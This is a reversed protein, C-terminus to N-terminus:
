KNRFAVEEEEFSKIMKFFGNALGLSPYLEIDSALVFHTTAADRAINRGVNVPYQLSKTVEDFSKGLLPENAPCAFNVELHRFDQSIAKPMFKAEFFVHFTAFQKVLSSQPHCNRLFSISAISDDFLDRPAWVAVSVPNLWREILPVLNPVLFSVDCHTTLTIAEHCKLNHAAKIYNKLIWFDGHQIIKLSENKDVCDLM